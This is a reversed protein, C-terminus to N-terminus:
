DSIQIKRSLVGGELSIMQLLYLGNTLSELPLHNTQTNGNLFVFDGFSKVERGHVDLLRITAEVQKTTEVRIVLQDSNSAPNPFISVHGVGKINPVATSTSATFSQLEGWGANTSTENFPWVKWFYRKNEKLTTLNLESADVIFRENEISFTSNRAIAVLYKNAGPVDEWDLTVNDFESSQGDNEPYIYNVPGTVEEINPTVGTRIYARELSFYDSNMLNKQGNTFEYSDCNVYYGMINNVMPEVPDGNRDLVRTNTQCDSIRFDPSFQFNYDAPTDCIRDASNNCNSGDVLEIIATPQFCDTLPLTSGLNVPNGYDEENYAVCEWGYHPHDVSFFHGAEHALTTSTLNINGKRMVLWDRGPDYYGQTIGPSGSGSDALNTVFVSVANNDRHIGMQIEAPLSSPTNYILTKDVYRIEDLYFTFEQPVYFQNINALQELVREEQVRGNGNDDAVLIFTMPVFKQVNRLAPDLTKLRNINEDLRKRFLDNSVFGCFSEQSLVSSSLALISTFLLFNRLSILNYLNLKHFLAVFTVIKNGVYNRTYM